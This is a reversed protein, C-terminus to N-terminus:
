SKGNRMWLKIIKLNKDYSQRSPPSSSPTAHNPNQKRGGVTPKQSRSPAPELNWDQAFSAGRKRCKRDCHCLFLFVHIYHGPLVTFVKPINGSVVPPVPHDLLAAALIHKRMVYQYFVQTQEREKKNIKKLKKNPRKLDKKM